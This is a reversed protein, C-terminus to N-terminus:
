RLKSRCMEDPQQSYDIKTGLMRGRVTHKSKDEFKVTFYAHKLILVRKRTRIANSIKYSIRRASGCM